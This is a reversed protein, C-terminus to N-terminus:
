SLRMFDIVDHHINRRLTDIRTREGRKPFSRNSLLVIVTQATPSIMISGGTFGTHALWNDNALPSMYRPDYVDWGMTYIGDDQSCCSYRLIKFVMDSFVLGKNPKYQYCELADAGFVLLDSLTSFLGAHGSKGGLVRANEDHVLGKIIANTNADIETPVAYLKEEDSLCFKTKNMGLPEFVLESFVEQLDKDLFTSIAHGLLIYSADDYVRKSAQSSLLSTGLAASVMEPGKSCSRYFDIAGPFGARHSLLRSVNLSAKDSPLHSGLLDGLTTELSVSGQKILQLLSAWTGVVKTLSALDWISNESIPPSTNEYTENGLHCIITVGRSIIGLSFGPALKAAIAKKLRIELKNSIETTELMSIIM